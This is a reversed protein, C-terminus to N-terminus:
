AARITEKREAIAEAVWKADRGVGNILDSTMSYQFRLGVFYLGPESTVIGRDHLPEGDIGFIPLDVWELGPLFGTSWIVNEVQLLEGDELKPRGREVGIVRPVRKVGGAILDKPKVRVLPTARLLMRPRVKRGIPTDVNLVNHGLARILHVFLFRGALSDVRFPVNGTEKGALWTPHEKVTEIAIEAGSNGAGVILVGGPALQSLNRYQSSHFQVIGLDLEPAFRPIRPRCYNGTAIVVQDAEFRKEGAEVLFHDGQRSLRTVRVDSRVPLKFHSAYGELYNGM